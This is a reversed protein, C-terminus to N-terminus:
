FIAMSLQTFCFQENGLVAGTRPIFEAASHPTRWTCRRSVGTCKQKHQEERVDAIGPTAEQEDWGKLTKFSYEIRSFLM